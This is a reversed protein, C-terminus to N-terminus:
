VGEEIWERIAPAMERDWESTMRVAAYEKFIERVMHHLNEYLYMRDFLAGEDDTIDAPPFRVGHLDLLNGKLTLMYEQSDSRLGLMMEITVKGGGLAARAEPATSPADGSLVAKDTPSAPLALAVKGDVWGEIPEDQGELKWFRGQETRWWMWTLFEFPAMAGTVGLFDNAQKEGGLWMAPKDEELQLGFTGHFRKRFVDNVNESLNGFLCYGQTVNWAVEFTRMKPLARRLLEEKVQDRLETLISSPARETGHEECWAMALKKTKARLLNAPVKREDIRLSFVIYDGFSWTNLDGFDIDLLGSVNAWGEVRVPPTKGPPELFSFESLQRGFSEWYGDPVDGLVRYRRASLRGTLISM